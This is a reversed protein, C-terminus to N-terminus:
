LALPEVLQQLAVNARVSSCTLPYETVTRQSRKATMVPLPLPRLPQPRQLPMLLQGRQRRELPRRLALM